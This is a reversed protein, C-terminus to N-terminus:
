EEDKENKSVTTPIKGGAMMMSKKNSQSACIAHCHYLMIETCQDSATRPWSGRRAHRGSSCVPIPSTDHKGREQVFDM